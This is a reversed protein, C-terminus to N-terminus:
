RGVIEVEDLREKEPGRGLVVLQEFGEDHLVEAVVDVPAPVEMGLVAEPDRGARSVAGLKELDLCTCAGLKMPQTRAQFAGYGDVVGAVDAM